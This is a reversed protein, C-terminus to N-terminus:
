YEQNLYDNNETMIPESAETWIQFDSIIDNEMLYVFDYANNVTTATFTYSTLNISGDIFTEKIGNDGNEDDTTYDRRTISYDNTNGSVSVYELTVVDNVLLPITYLDNVENYIRKVLNSNKYVNLYDGQILVDDLYTIVFSGTM